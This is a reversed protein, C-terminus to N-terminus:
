DDCGDVGEDDGADLMATMMTELGFVHDLVILFMIVVMKRRAGDDTGPIVTTLM